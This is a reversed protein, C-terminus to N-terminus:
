QVNLVVITSHNLSGSTATVTLTYSQAAEYPVRELGCGSLGIMDALLLFMGVLFFKRHRKAYKNVKRSLGFPVVLLALAIRAATRLNRATEVPRGAQM